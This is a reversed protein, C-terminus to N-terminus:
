GQEGFNPANLPDFVALREGTGLWEALPSEECPWEPPWQDKDESATNHHCGSMQTAPPLDSSNSSYEVTCM